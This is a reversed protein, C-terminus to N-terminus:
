TAGESDRRGSRRTRRVGAAPQLFGGWADVGGRVAHFRGGLADGPLGGEVGFSTRFAAMLAKGVSAELCRCFAPGARGTLERGLLDQIVKWSEALVLSRRREPPLPSAAEHSRLVGLIM